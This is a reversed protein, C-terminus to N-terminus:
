KAKEPGYYHLALETLATRLKDAATQNHVHAYRAFGILTGGGVIWGLVMQCDERVSAFAERIAQNFELQDGSIGIRSWPAAHVESQAVCSPLKPAAGECHDRLSVAADYQRRTISGAQLLRELPDARRARRIRRKAGPEEAAEDRVVVDAERLLTGDEARVPNLRLDAGFDCLNVVGRDRGVRAARERQHEASIVRARMISELGIALLIPAKFRVRELMARDRIGMRLLLPSTLQEPMAAQPRRPPQRVSLRWPHVVAGEPVQQRRGTVCSLRYRPAQAGAKRLVTVGLIRYVTVGNPSTMFDGV